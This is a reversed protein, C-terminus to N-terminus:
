IYFFAYIHFPLGALHSNMFRELFFRRDKIRAITKAVVNIATKKTIEMVVDAYEVGLLSMNSTSPISMVTPGFGLAVLIGRSVDIVISAREETANFSKFSKCVVGLTGM